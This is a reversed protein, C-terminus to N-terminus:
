LCAITRLASEKDGLLILTLVRIKTKFFFLFHGLVNLSLTQASRRGVTHKEQAMRASLGVETTKLSWRSVGSGTREGPTM